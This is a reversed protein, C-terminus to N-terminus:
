KIWYDTENFPAVAIVNHNTNALMWHVHSNINAAWHPVNAKNDEVFYADSGAEQDATFLLPLDARVINFMDSRQRLHQTQDASLVSDNTLAYTTRFASRGVGINERGMHNIGKRLNQENIWAQDLGWTLQFRQGASDINFVLTADTKSPLTLYMSSTPRGVQAEAQLAVWALGFWLLRSMM